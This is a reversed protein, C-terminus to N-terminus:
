FRYTNFNDYCIFLDFAFCKLQRASNKNGVRDYCNDFIFYLPMLTVGLMAFTSQRTM